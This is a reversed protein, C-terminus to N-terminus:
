QLQVRVTPSCFAGNEPSMRTEGDTLLQVLALVPRINIKLTKPTRSSDKSQEESDDIRKWIQWHQFIPENFIFQPKGNKTTYTSKFYQGHARFETLIKTLRQISRMVIIFRIFNPYKYLMTKKRKHLRPDIRKCITSLKRCGVRDLRNQGRAEKIDM